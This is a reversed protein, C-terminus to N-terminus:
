RSVVIARRDTSRYSLLKGKRTRYLELARTQGEGESTAASGCLKGDLWPFPGERHIHEGEAMSQHHTTTAVNWHRLDRM